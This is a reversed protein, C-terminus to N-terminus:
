ELGGGTRASGDAIARWAQHLFQLVAVALGLVFALGFPWVPFTLVGQIGIYKGGEYDRILTLVGAWCVLALMAAGVLDYFASLVAAVRPRSQALAGLVMDTRALRNARITTALALYVIAVLLSAGLESVLPLSAGLLNRALADASIILMLVVILLTSIAALGEGVWTLLRGVSGMARATVVPGSM